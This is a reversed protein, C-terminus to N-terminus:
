CRVRPRDCLSEVIKELDRQAAKRAAADVPDRDQGEGGYHFWGIVRGQRAFGIVAFGVIEFGTGNIGIAAAEAGVSLSHAHVETTGPNGAEKRFRAVLQRAAEETAAVVIGEEAFQEMKEALDVRRADQILPSRLPASGIITPDPLAKSGSKFTVWGVQGEHPLRYGAPIKSLFPTADATPTPTTSPPPATASPQSPARTTAANPTTSNTAPTSSCASAVLAVLVGLIWAHPHRPM